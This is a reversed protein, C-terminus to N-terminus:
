AARSGGEVELVERLVAGLYNFALVTLLILVGPYVALMPATYIYQQANALMNGWSPDPPQVGLGLYSLSTEVLIAWALGLSAAVVISAFAQPLIHRVFIRLRSAGLAAAATIFEYQKIRLVESRVVRAVVMWSSLGIVLVINALSPGFLTLITMVIFFIPVALFADTVVMLAGDLLGGRYGAIGGVLTGLGVAVIMAVFGITLSGQAGVFLRTLIDRGNEDTGLPHDASPPALTAALDIQEASYGTVQPIVLTGGILLLLYLASALALRQRALRRLFTRWQSQAPAAQPEAELEIEPAPLL